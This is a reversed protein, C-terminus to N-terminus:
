MRWFVSADFRLLPTGSYWYGVRNGYCIKALGSEVGREESWAGQEKGGNTMPAQDNGEAEKGSRAGHEKSREGM